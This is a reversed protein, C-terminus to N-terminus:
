EAFPYKLIISIKFVYSCMKTESIIGIIIIEAGYEVLTMAFRTAKVIRKYISKKRKFLIGSCFLSIIGCIGKLTTYFKM